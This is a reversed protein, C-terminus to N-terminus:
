LSILHTAHSIMLLPLFIICLFGNVDHGTFSTTILEKISEILQYLMDAFYLLPLTFGGLVTNLYLAQERNIDGIYGTGDQERATNGLFPNKVESNYGLRHM